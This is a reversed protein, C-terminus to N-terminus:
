TFVDWCLEIFRTKDSVRSSIQVGAVVGGGEPAAALGDWCSPWTPRNLIYLYYLLVVWHIQAFKPMKPLEKYSRQITSYAIQFKVQLGCM